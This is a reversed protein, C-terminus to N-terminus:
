TTSDAGIAFGGSSQTKMLCRKMVAIPL